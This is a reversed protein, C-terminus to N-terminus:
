HLKINKLHIVYVLGQKNEHQRLNLVDSYDMNDKKELELLETLHNVSYTISNTQNLTIKKWHFRKNM